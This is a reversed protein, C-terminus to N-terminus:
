IFSCLSEIGAHFFSISVFLLFFIYHFLVMGLMIMVLICGVIGLMLMVPICGLVM